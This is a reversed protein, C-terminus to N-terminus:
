GRGLLREALPIPLLVVLRGGDKVRGAALGAAEGTGFFLDARQPGKIASGTDQAIFLRRVPAEGGKEVWVPAGLPVFAPDVAATRWTTIPLGMAGIPGDDPRLTEIERFFVFSENHHLLARGEDPNRRVWNRIVQASVQHAAFLGRRVMEQGISRYRHGNNGGYGVRITTGDELRVRGSGQIQLFFVEVPDDIWVIELGRGAIAGNEIEARTLSPQGNPLDAPRRYLPTQYPGHRRRAGRLEPEFYATFLAREGPAMVVPRFFLEFFQRANTVNPALRCLPQWEPDRLFRCSNVFVSLAAQHDDDAWGLLRDFREEFINAAAGSTMAALALAAAAIRLRSVPM